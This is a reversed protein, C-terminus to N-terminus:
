SVPKLYEHTHGGIAFGPVHSHDVKGCNLCTVVLNALLCGSYSMRTGRMPLHQKEPNPTKRVAGRCGWSEPDRAEKM